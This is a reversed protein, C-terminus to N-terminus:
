SRAREERVKRVLDATTLPAIVREKRKALIRAVLTGRRALEEETVPLLPEKEKMPVEKARAPRIMAEIDDKEIRISRPGVRHAPLKGAAIWRWVTAPSVHLMSAAETVTCFQRERSGKQSNIMAMVQLSTMVRM